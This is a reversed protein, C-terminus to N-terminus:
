RAVSLRGDPTGYREPPGCHGVSRLANRAAWEPPPTASPPAVIRAYAISRGDPSFYPDIALVCRASRCPVVTRTDGTEPDVVMIRSTSDDRKFREFAIAKGDPSWAPVNDRWRKPPFTVQRLDSGDPDMVFLAGKTQAADFYRRFVIRGDATPRGPVSTDHRAAHNASGAFVPLAMAVTTVAVVTLVPGLVTLSKPM